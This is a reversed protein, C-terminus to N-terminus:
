AARQSVGRLHAAITNPTVGDGLAWVAGELASAAEGLIPEALSRYKARVAEDPLPRAASGIPIDIRRRRVEGGSLRLV